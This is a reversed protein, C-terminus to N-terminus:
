TGFKYEFVDSLVNEWKPQTVAWSFEKALQRGNFSLHESLGQNSLLQLVAEAMTADDNDPVLLGTKGHVLMDPIGGVSTAVIPLGMAAMEILTTPFNDVNNTNLFIDYLSGALIKEDHSLFGPFSVEQGFGMEQSQKKTKEELGKDPGAMMLRATPHMKQVRKLVRLAMVPNYYVFFSRMWLINPRLNIKPFYPYDSIEITNPIVRLDHGFQSFERELYTSPAIIIDARNLVSSVWKPFRKAMAPLIGGHLMMIIAHGLRKGIASAMDEVLFSHHGYIQLIQINIYKRQLWLTQIIDILRRYRNTYHSVKLVPYGSKQLNKALTEGPTPLFGYHEGVM